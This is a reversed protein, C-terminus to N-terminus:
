TDTAITKTTGDGFKVKLDGDATDVYIQAYGAVTSPATIGDAMSLHSGIRVEGGSAFRVRETASGDVGGGPTIESFILNSTGSGAGWRIRPTINTGGSYMRVSPTFDTAEIKLVPNVSSPADIHLGENTTTPQITMEDTFTNAESLIAATGTAPVTLTYGGTAVTGGGTLTAGIFNAKTIKRTDANSARWIPVFDGAAASTTVTLGNITKTM